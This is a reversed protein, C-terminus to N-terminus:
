LSPPINLIKKIARTFGVEFIVRGRDNLIEGHSGEQLGMSALFNPDAAKQLAERESETLLTALSYVVASPQERAEMSADITPRRDITVSSQGKLINLQAKLKDREVIVLQMYSRLAPDQIRNLYENSALPKPPKLSVPGAYVAWAEILTRYDASPANYLARGKMIGMDEALRGINPLTFDREGAAYQQRCLEHMKKLNELRQSRGGKALLADLLANPSVVTTSNM